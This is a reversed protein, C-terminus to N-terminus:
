LRSALFGTAIGIPVSLVVTWTVVKLDWRRGSAEKEDLHTKVTFGMDSRLARVADSNRAVDAFAEAELTEQKANVIQNRAEDLARHTVSIQEQLAEAIGNTSDLATRITASTDTLTQSVRTGAQRLLEQAHTVRALQSDPDRLEAARRTEAELEYGGIWIIAISITIISGLVEAYAPYSDDAHGAIACVIRTAIGCFVAALYTAVIIVAVYGGNGHRALAGVRRGLTTSSLRQALTEILTDTRTMGEKNSSRHGHTTRM